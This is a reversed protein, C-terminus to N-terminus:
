TVKVKTVGVTYIIYGHVYTHVYTHVLYEIHIKSLKIYMSTYVYM